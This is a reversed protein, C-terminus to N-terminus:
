EHGTGGDKAGVQPMPRVPALGLEARRKDIAAQVAKIAESSDMELALHTYNLEGRACADIVANSEELTKPWRNLVTRNNNDYFRIM